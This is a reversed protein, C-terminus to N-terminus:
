LKSKMSILQKIKQILIQNNSQEVEQKYELQQKQSITVQDDEAKLKEAFNRCIL